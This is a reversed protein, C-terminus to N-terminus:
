FFDEEEESLEYLPQTLNEMEEFILSQGLFPISISDPNLGFDLDINPNMEENVSDKFKEFRKLHFTGMLRLKAISISKEIQNISEVKDELFLLIKAKTEHLRAAPTEEQFNNVVCNLLANEILNLSKEVKGEHFYIEALNNMFLIKTAVALHNANQISEANKRAIELCDKQNHHIFFKKYLDSLNHIYIPENPNLEIAKKFFGEGNEFSEKTQQGVLAMAYNNFYSAKLEVDNSYKENNQTMKMIIPLLIAQASQFNGVNIERVAFWQIWILWQDSLQFQLAKEICYQLLENSKLHHGRIWYCNSLTAQIIILEVSEFGLTKKMMNVVNEMIKRSDEVKFPDHLKSKAEEYWFIGEDLSIPVDEMPNPIYSVLNNIESNKPLIPVNSVLVTTPDISVTSHLQNM